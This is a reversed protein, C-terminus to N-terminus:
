PGHAGIDHSFFCLLSAVLGPNSLLDAAVANGTALWNCQLQDPPARAPLVFLRRGPLRRVIRPRLLQRIQRDGRHLSSGGISRPAPGSVPGSHVKGGGSRALGMSDYTRPAARRRAEGRAKQHVPTPPPMGVLSRSRARATRPRPPRGARMRARREPASVARTGSSRRRDKRPQAAGEVVDPRPPWGPAGPQVTLPVHLASVSQQERTHADPSHAHSSGPDDQAPSSSQQASQAQM